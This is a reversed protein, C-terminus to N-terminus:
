YQSVDRRKIKGYLWRIGNGIWFLILAFGTEFIFIFTSEWISKLSDFPHTLVLFNTSLSTYTGNTHQLWGWKTFLIFCTSALIASIVLILTIALFTHFQLLSNRIRKSSLLFPFAIMLGGMPIIAVIWMIQYLLDCSIGIPISLLIGLSLIAISSHSELYESVIILTKKLQKRFIYFIAGVIILSVIGFKLNYLYAPFLWARHDYFRDAFGARADAILPFSCLSLVFLLKLSYRSSLHRM